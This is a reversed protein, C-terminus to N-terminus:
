KPLEIVLFQFGGAAQEVREKHAPAGSDKTSITVRTDRGKSKAEVGRVATDFAEVRLPRRNNRLHIVTNKLTVVVAGRQEDVKYDPVATLQLFVTPVGDKVQFGSWTLRQLGRKIPLKPPHPPLAESGPAVGQYKEGPNLTLPAAPAPAPEAKEEVPQVPRTTKAKPAPPPNDDDEKPKFDQAAVVLPLCVVLALLTRVM